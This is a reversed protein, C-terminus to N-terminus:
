SLTIWKKASIVHVARLINLSLAREKPIIILIKNRSKQYRYLNNSGLSALFKQQVVRLGSLEFERNLYNM